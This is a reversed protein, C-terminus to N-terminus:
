LVERVGVLSICVNTLCIGNHCSTILSYNYSIVAQRGNETVTGGVNIARISYRFRVNKM